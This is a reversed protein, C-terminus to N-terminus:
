PCVVAIRQRIPTRCYPCPDAKGRLTDWCEECAVVHRCPQFLVARPRHLCVVCQQGEAAAAQAEDRQRKLREEMEQTHFNKKREVEERPCGVGSSGLQHM